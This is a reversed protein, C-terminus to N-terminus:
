PIDTSSHSTNLFDLAERWREIDEKNSDSLTESSLLQGIMTAASNAAHNRKSDEYAIRQREANKSQQNTYGDDNGSLGKKVSDSSDTGVQVVGSKRYADAFIQYTAAEVQKTQEYKLGTDELGTPKCGDAEYGNPKGNERFSGSIIATINACTQEIQKQVLCIEEKAKVANAMATETDAKIKALTYAGDREEKAWSLATQMAASSLQTTLMAMYEAIIKAKEDATLNSDNFNIALADKARMYLSEPDMSDQMLQIYKESVELKSDERQFEGVVVNCAM